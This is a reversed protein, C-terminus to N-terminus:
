FSFPGETRGLQRDSWSLLGGSLVLPLVLLGLLLPSSWARFFFLVLVGFFAIFLGGLRPRRRAVGVLILLLLWPLANPSNMVIGRLGGGYTESGSLLAFLFWWGAIVLLAWWAITRVYWYLPKPKPMTGSKPSVM